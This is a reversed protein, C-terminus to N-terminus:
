LRPGHLAKQTSGHAVEDARQVLRLADGKVQAARDTCDVPVCDLEVVARPEFGAEHENTDAHTRPQRERFARPQRDVVAYQDVFVQLRARGSDESGPVNRAPGVRVATLAQADLM